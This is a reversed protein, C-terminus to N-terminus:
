DFASYAVHESRHLVSYESCRAVQISRAIESPSILMFELKPCHRFEATHRILAPASSGITAYIAHNIESRIASRNFAGNYRDFAAFIDTNSHYAFECM